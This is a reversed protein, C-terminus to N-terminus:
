LRADNYFKNSLSEQNMQVAAKFQIFRLGNLDKLM